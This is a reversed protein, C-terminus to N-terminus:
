EMVSGHMAYAPTLNSEWANHICASWEKRNLIVCPLVVSYSIRERNISVQTTWLKPSNHIFSSHINQHRAKMERSSSSWLTFTHKTLFDGFQMGFHSYWKANGGPIFSLEKQDVDKGTNPLIVTKSKPWKILYITTDKQWKMKWIGLSMHHHIDRWM